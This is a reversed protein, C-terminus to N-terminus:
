RLTGIEPAQEGTLLAMLTGSASATIQRPDSGSLLVSTDFHSQGQPLPFNYSGLTLVGTQGSPVWAYVKTIRVLMSMQAPIPLQAADASYAYETVYAPIRAWLGDVLAQRGHELATLERLVEAKADGDIQALFPQWKREIWSPQHPKPELHPAPVPPAYHPRDPM